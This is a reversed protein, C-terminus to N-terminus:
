GNYDSPKVELNSLTRIQVSVVCSFNPNVPANDADRLYITLRSKLHSSTNDPSNSLTTTVNYIFNAGGSIASLDIVNLLETFNIHYEGVEAGKEISLISGETVRQSNIAGTAGISFNITHSKSGSMDGHPNPNATTFYFKNDDTNTAGRVLLFTADIYRVDSISNGTFSIDRHAGSTPNSVMCFAYPGQTASTLSSTDVERFINDNIKISEAPLEGAGIFVPNGATIGKCNNLSFNIDKGAHNGTNSFGRLFHNTSGTTVLTNSSINISTSQQVRFCGNGANIITNGTATCNSAGNFAIGDASTNEIYNGTISLQTAGAAYIGNDLYANIIRNDAIVGYAAGLIGGQMNYIANGSITMYYTGRVYIAQAGGSGVRTEALSDRFTCNTISLDGVTTATMTWAPQVARVTPSLLESAEVESGINVGFATGIMELRDFRANTVSAGVESFFGNVASESEGDPLLAILKLGSVEIGDIDSSVYIINGSTAEMCLSGSGTIKTDDLVPRLSSTIKYRGDPIIVKSHASLASNIAQTDDSVGDGVAGFDKVNVADAFRDSLSRPATGDTSIVDQAGLNASNVDSFPEVNANDPATTPDATQATYPLTVGSKPKYTIGNFDSYENMTTFTTVGQTWTGIYSKGITNEIADTIEQSGEAILTDVQNEFGQLTLKTKGDSAPPTRDDSSTVVENQTEADLKFTKATQITPFDSCSM